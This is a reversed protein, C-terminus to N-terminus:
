KRRGTRRARIAGVNRGPPAFRPPTRPKGAHRGRGSGFPHNVANMAVGSVRPYVNGRVRRAHHHTGAKVFPKEKRGSGAVVGILARCEVNLTKQKKSPLEIVIGEPTKTVLRAFSGSSRCLKPGSGPYTEIGSIFTGEQINKLPLINGLSATAKGGSEVVDGIKVRYTAPLTINANDEFSIKVLPAHHARTDVIDIIKGNMVGNKEKENYDRMQIKESFKFSLSRYRNTGTGKRRQRIRKGM